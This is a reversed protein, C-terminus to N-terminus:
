LHIKSFSTSIRVERIGGEGEVVLLGWSCYDDAEKGAESM